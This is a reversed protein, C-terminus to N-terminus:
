EIMNLEVHNPEKLGQATVKLRDLWEFPVNMTNLETAHNNNGDPHPGHYDSGGTTLLGYQEAWALLKERQHPLHSPHYVELGMLGAEVFSPLIKEVSGGRWLFPHAWVPVAGVSRLLEIGEITSFPEYGFYAPRGESLFYSFAQDYTTVHGAKVLARAIHPRGPAVKGGLKPMEIPYGLERLRQVMREARRNRGDLREQLPGLLRARDPYFGLVHVSKGQAITSLELGPVIELDDGAAAIAEDWGNTSDHDTIALAKVGAQRAANVLETPTLSGDSFTTHCHLELM